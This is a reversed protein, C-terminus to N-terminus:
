NKGAWAGFDAGDENTPEVSHDEWLPGWYGQLWADITGKDQHWIGHEENYNPYANDSGVYMLREDVCVIKSHAWMQGNDQEVRHVHLQNALVDDIKDYDIGEASYPLGNMIVRLRHRLRTISTRDEWGGRM